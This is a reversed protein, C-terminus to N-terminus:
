RGGARERVGSARRDSLSWCFRLLLMLLSSSSALVFAALKKESVRLVNLNCHNFSRQICAGCNNDIGRQNKSIPIKQLSMDVTWGNIWKRNSVVVFHPLPDETELPYLEQERHVNPCWFTREAYTWMTVLDFEGFLSLQGLSVSEYCKPCMKAM